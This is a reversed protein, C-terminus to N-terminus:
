ALSPPEPVALSGAENHLQPFQPKVRSLSWSGQAQSGSARGERPVVKSHGPGKWLSSPDARPGPRHAPRPGLRASRVTQRRGPARVHGPDEQAHGTDRGAHTGSGPTTHTSARGASQGAPCGSRGTGLLATTGPSPGPGTGAAAMHLRPRTRSWPGGAAWCMRGASSRGGPGCSHGGLEASRGRGPAGPLGGPPRCGRARVPGLCGSDAVWWASQLEAGHLQPLQPQDGPWPDSALAVSGQTGQPAAASAPLPSQGLHRDLRGLPRPTKRPPPPPRSARHAPSHHSDQLIPDPTGWRAWGVGQAQPPAAEQTPPVPTCHADQTPVPEQCSGRM